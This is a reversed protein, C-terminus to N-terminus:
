HDSIQRLQNSTDIDFNINFWLEAVIIKNVVLMCVLMVPCALSLSCRTGHGQWSLFSHSSRPQVLQANLVVDKLMSLRVVMEAMPEMALWTGCLTVSSCSDLLLCFSLIWQVCSAGVLTGMFWVALRWTLYCPVMRSLASRGLRHIGRPSCFAPNDGPTCSFSVPCWCDPFGSPEWLASQMAKPWVFTSLVWSTKFVYMYM